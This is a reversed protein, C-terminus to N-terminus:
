SVKKRESTDENRFESPYIVIYVSTSIPTISYLVDISDIAYPFLHVKTFFTIHPVIDLHHSICNKIYVGFIFSFWKTLYIELTM